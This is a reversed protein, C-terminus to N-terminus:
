EETLPGIKREWVQRLRKPTLDQSMSFTHCITYQRDLLAELQENLSDFGDLLDSVSNTNGDKGYFREFLRALSPL